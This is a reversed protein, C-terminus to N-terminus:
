DKEHALEVHAKVRNTKEDYYGYVAVSALMARFDAIWQQDNRRPSLEEVAEVQLWFHNEEAETAIAYLHTLAADVSEPVISFARFNDCDCLSLDGNEFIRIYM